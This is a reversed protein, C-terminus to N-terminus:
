GGDGLRGRAAILVVAMDDLVARLALDSAGPIVERLLFLAHEYAHDVCEPSRATLRRYGNLDVVKAPAGGSADPRSPIVKKKEPCMRFTISEDGGGGIPPDEGHQM